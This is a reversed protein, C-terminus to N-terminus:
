RTPEQWAGSPSVGAATRATIMTTQGDSGAQTGAAVGIGVDAFDWSSPSAKNEPGAPQTYPFRLTVVADDAQDSCPSVVTVQSADETMYVTNEGLEDDSPLVDVIQPKPKGRRTVLLRSAITEEPSASSEEPPPERLADLGGDAYTIEFDVRCSGTGFATPTVLDE